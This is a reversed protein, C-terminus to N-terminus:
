QSEAGFRRQFGPASATVDYSGAPISVINFGGSADSAVTREAGTEQNKASVSANPIVAGQQDRATGVISRAVTQASSQPAHVCGSVVSVFAGVLWCCTRNKGKVARGVPDSIEISFIRKSLGKDKQRIPSRGALPIARFIQCSGLHTRPKLVM